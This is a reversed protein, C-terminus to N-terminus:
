SKTKDVEVLIANSNGATTDYDRLTNFNIGALTGEEKNSIFNVVFLVLLFLVIFAGIGMIMSTSSMGSAEAKTEFASDTDMLMINATILPSSTHGGTDNAKIGRLSITHNGEIDIGPLHELQHIIDIATLTGTTDGHDFSHINSWDDRLHNSRWQITDVDGLASYSLSGEPMMHIRNDNGNETTLTVDLSTDFVYD